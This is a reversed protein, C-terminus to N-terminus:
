KRRRRVAALGVLGSGFLLLTMPEPVPAQAIDYIKTDDPFTLLAWTATKGSFDTPNCWTAEVVVLATTLGYEWLGPDIGEGAVFGWQGKWKDGGINSLSGSWVPYLDWMSLWSLCKDNVSHTWDIYIAGSLYNPNDDSSAELHGGGTYDKGIIFEPVYPPEGEGWDKGAGQVDGDYIHDIDAGVSVALALHPILIVVLLCLGLGMLLRKM